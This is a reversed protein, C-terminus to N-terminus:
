RGRGKRQVVERVPPGDSLRYARKNLYFHMNGDVGEAYFLEFTILHKMDCNCCSNEIVARAARDTGYRILRLMMPEGDRNNQVGDIIKPPDVLPPWERVKRGRKKRATPKTM